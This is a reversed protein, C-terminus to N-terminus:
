GFNPNAINYDEKGNGFRQTIIKVRYKKVKKFKKHWHLPNEM